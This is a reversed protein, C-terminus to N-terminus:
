YCSLSLQITDALPALASDFAYVTGGHGSIIGLNHNRSSGSRGTTTESGPAYHPPKSARGDGGRRKGPDHGWNM